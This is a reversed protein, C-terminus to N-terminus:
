REKQKVAPKASDLSVSSRLYAFYFFLTAGSIALDVLGLLINGSCFDDHTRSGLFALLLLGLIAIYVWKVSGSLRSRNGWYFTSERTFSSSEKALKLEHRIEAELIGLYQYNRLVFLARHYLNVMLYFVVILIISHLVGLPFGQRLEKLRDEGEVGVLRAVLDVMLSEAQSVRFTLITGVGIVGLLLLFLRNREKWFDYTQEYTKQYHEALIEATQAM